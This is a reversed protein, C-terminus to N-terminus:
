LPPADKGAASAAAKWLQPLNGDAGGGDLIASLFTGIVPVNKMNEVPFPDARPGISAVIPVGEILVQSHRYHMAIQKQAM